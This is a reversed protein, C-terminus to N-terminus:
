SCAYPIREILQRSQMAEIRFKQRFHATILSGRSQFTPLIGDFARATPCFNLSRLQPNATGTTTHSIGLESPLQASILEFKM